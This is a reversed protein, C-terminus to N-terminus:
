SQSRRAGTPFNRVPKGGALALELGRTTLQPSLEYSGAKFDAQHGRSWVTLRFLAASRILHADQLRQAILAVSDGKTINFLVSGAGGVPQNVSWLVFTGFGILLFITVLFGKM